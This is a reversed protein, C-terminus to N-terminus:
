KAKSKLDKRPRIGEPYVHSCHRPKPKLHWRTDEQVFPTRRSWQKAMQSSPIQIRKKSNTLNRSSMTTCELHHDQNVIQMPPHSVSRSYGKGLSKTLGDTADALRDGGMM